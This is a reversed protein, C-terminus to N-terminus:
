NGTKKHKNVWIGGKWTIIGRLAYVVVWNLLLGLTRIKNRCIFNISADVSYKVKKKRYFTLNSQLFFHYNIEISLINNQKMCDYVIHLCQPM